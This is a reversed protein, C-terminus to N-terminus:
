RMRWRSASGVPFCSSSSSSSRRRASSSSRSYNRLSPQVEAASTCHFRYDPRCASRLVTRRNYTYTSNSTMETPTTAASPFGTQTARSPNKTAAM